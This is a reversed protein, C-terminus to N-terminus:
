VQQGVAVAVAVLLLSQHYFRITVQHAQVLLQQKLGVVVL